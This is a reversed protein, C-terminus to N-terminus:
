GEGESQADTLVTLDESDVILVCPNDVDGNIDVVPFVDDVDDVTQHIYMPVEDPMHATMKRFEGLTLVREAM